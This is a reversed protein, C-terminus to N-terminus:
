RAPKNNEDLQNLLRIVEEDSLQYFYQYYSGVSGQFLPDIQLAVVDDVESSLLKAADSPIVPIAVIIKDPQRNKLDRIAARMTLGTAIGDDVLIALLGKVAVPERGSLYCKRRRKAEAMEEKREQKFWDSDLKALETENCITDGNETVAGIAYEANFPHGIKRPIILDLPMDLALAVEFGLPVGGRPLAYIVADMDPYKKTLFTALTKALLKGAHARTNFHM